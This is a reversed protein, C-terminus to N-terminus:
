QATFPGVQSAQSTGGPVLIIGVGSGKTGTNTTSVTANSTTAATDSYGIASVNNNSTTVSVANISPTNSYSVVAASSTVTTITSSVNKIINLVWNWQTSYNPSTTCCSDSACNNAGTCCGSAACNNAAGCTASYACNNAAGCTASYACNNAGTCCASYAGGYNAGTCCANYAGGYNSGTCCSNPTGAYNSGTCCSSYTGPYVSYSCCSNYTGAYYSSGAAYTLVQKTATAYRQCTGGCPGSWGPSCNNCFYTTGCNGSAVCMLTGSGCTYSAACNNAAGCTASYACNNAAGCTASASCNNSAGCTYSASCGNSGTCCSNPTGAYNSGTCCSNPTGAYNAGTCCANYTCNNSGTCCSNTNCSYSSIYLSTSGSSAAAWWDNAGSQWFVIGSGSPASKVTATMNQNYPTTAFPYSSAATATVAAGSNSYWTGNTQTWVNGTTANGLAGSTTRAFTDNIKIGFNSIFGYSRNSLGSLTDRLPAM